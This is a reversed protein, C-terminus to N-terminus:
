MDDTKVTQELLKIETDLDFIDNELIKSLQRSLGKMIQDYSTNIRNLTRSIEPNDTGFAALENQKVALKVIVDLYYGFFRRAKKIDSPDKELEKIIRGVLSVIEILKRKSSVDKMVAANKELIQLKARAAKLISEAETKPIGEYNVNLADQKKILLLGAIYGGAGAAGALYLNAGTLFFTLAFLAGGTL